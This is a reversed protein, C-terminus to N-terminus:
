FAKGGGECGAREHFSIAKVFDARFRAATAQWEKQSKRIDRQLDEREFLIEPATQGRFDAVVSMRRRRQAVGWFQSNHVRWAISWRDAMITGSNSWVDGAALRPISANVDACQAVEQLVTRFDEGGNTTTCGTVNEWVFYRPRILKDTRRCENHLERVLRIQETFLGSREGALGSRDGGISLDQCPSGGTIVDVIPVENGKIKTIDGFHKM